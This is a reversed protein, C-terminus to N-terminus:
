FSVPRFHLNQVIEAILPTEEHPWNLGNLGVVPALAIRRALITGKDTTLSENSQPKLRVHREKETKRKEDADGEARERV